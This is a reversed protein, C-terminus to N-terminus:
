NGHGKDTQEEWVVSQPRHKVSIVVAATMAAAVIGWGVVILIWPRKHMM